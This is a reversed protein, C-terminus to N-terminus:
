RREDESDSAHNKQRDERESEYSGGNFDQFIAHRLERLAEQERAERERANEIRQQNQHESHKRGIQV